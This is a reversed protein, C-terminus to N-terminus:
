YKGDMFKVMLCWCKMESNRQSDTELHSVHAFKKSATYWPLSTSYKPLSFPHGSCYCNKTHRWTDAFVCGYYYGNVPYFDQPNHCQTMTNSYRLTWFSRTAKMKLWDLFFLKERVAQSRANLCLSGKFCWSGSMCSCMTVDWFVQIWLWTVMLVEFRAQWLLKDSMHSDAPESLSDYGLVSMSKIFYQASQRM